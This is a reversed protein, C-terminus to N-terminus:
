IKLYGLETSINEAALRVLNLIGTVQSRDIYEPLPLAAGIAAVVERSADRIPAAIGVIGRHAEEEEILYGNERIRALRLWFADPDTISNPTYAQLPYRALIQQAKEVPLFAMLIQGLMGFHLRRREGISSSIKIIGTGEHKDVYVLHDEKSQGLLINLGTKDRLWKMNDTSAKRISFSAHVVGGLEFLRLGLEYFKTQPDLKLYGRDTLNSLLRKATAKKLGLESVVDTLHMKRRQYSFADLIDLARELAQVRYVTKKPSPQLEMIHVKTEINKLYYLFSLLTLFYILNM